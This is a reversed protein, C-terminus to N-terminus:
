RLGLEDFLQLSRSSLTAPDDVAAVVRICRGCGPDVGHKLADHRAPRRRDLQERLRVGRVSAAARCVQCLSGARPCASRRGRRDSVEAFVFWCFERGDGIPHLLSRREGPNLLTV